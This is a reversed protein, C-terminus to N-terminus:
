EKCHHRADDKTPHEKTFPKPNKPKPINSKDKGKGKGKGKGKANLSKKNAKQIRGGQIAMVHPTAVNVQLTIQARLNECEKQVAEDIMAAVDIQTKQRDLLLGEADFLPVINKAIENVRDGVMSPLVEEM